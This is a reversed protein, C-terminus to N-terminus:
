QAPITEEECGESLQACEFKLVDIEEKLKNVNAKSNEIRASVKKQLEEKLALLKNKEEELQVEESKLNKIVAAPKEPQLPALQPGSSPANNETQNQNEEVKPAEKKKNGFVNVM